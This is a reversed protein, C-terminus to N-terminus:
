VQVFGKTRAEREIVKLEARGEMADGAQIKVQARALRAEFEFPLASVKRAEEIAEEFMKQAETTKGMAAQIRAAEIAIPLHTGVDGSNGELKAASEIASQAEQLKGQVHLTQALKCQAEAESASDKSGNLDEVAQHALGEADSFRGDDMALNALAMR